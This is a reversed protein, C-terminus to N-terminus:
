ITNTGSKDMKKFFFTEKEPHIATINAQKPNYKRQMFFLKLM